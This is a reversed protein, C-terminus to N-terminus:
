VYLEVLIETQKTFAQLNHKFNYGCSPLFINIIQVNFSRVPVTLVSTDVAPTCSATLSCCFMTNLVNVNTM